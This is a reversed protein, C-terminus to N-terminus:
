PREFLRDDLKKLLEIRTIDMEVAKKGDIYTTIRRPYKVGSVEKYNGLIVEADAERGTVPHQMRRKSKLLLGSKSDFFLVAEIGNKEDSVRVGVAERGEVKAKGAAKLNAGEALCSPLIALIANWSRSLPQKDGKYDKAKGGNQRIWGSGDTIAYEMSFDKGMFQGKITRRYRRPLEFTEEWSIAADVDPSLAMKAKAHLTGTLTKALNQKGGHAKIAAELTGRPTEQAGAGGLLMSSCVVLVKLALWAKRTRFM